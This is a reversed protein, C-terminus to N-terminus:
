YLITLRSIFYQLDELKPRRKLIMKVIRTGKSKWIFTLILKGVERLFGVPFKISNGMSDMSQSPFFICRLSRSDELVHIQVKERRKSLNEKIKQLLM